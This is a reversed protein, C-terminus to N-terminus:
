LGFGSKLKPRIINPYEGELESSFRRIVGLGRPNGNGAYGFESLHVLRWRSGSGFGIEVKPIGEERKVGSVTIQAVTQGTDRYTSISSRFKPEVEQGTERLARNVITKVKADGLRNEMENLLEDIGSVKCYGSAM